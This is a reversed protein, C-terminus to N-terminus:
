LTYRLAPQRRSLAATNFFQTLKSRTTGGLAVQANTANAALPARDATTGYVNNANTGTLTLRQGSQIITVGAM